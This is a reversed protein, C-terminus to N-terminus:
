SFDITAPARRFGGTAFALYIVGALLWIGGAIKALPSLNLWIATCFAFGSLPVVVDFLIRHRYEPPRRFTFQWFCAFNVGMFALLAGFNLLFAANEYANGYINLLLAGVFTLAGILVLNFTPTTTGPHVYGFLKRPLV